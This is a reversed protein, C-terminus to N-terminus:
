GETVSTEADICRSFLGGLPTHAAAGPLAPARAAVEQWQRPACSTDEPDLMFHLRKEKKERLRMVSLKLSQQFLVHLFIRLCSSMVCVVLVDVFFFVRWLQEDRCCLVVTLAAGVVKASRVTESRLNACVKHPLPNPLLPLAMGEM